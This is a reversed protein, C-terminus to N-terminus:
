FNDVVPKVDVLLHDGKLYLTYYYTESIKEMENKDWREAWWGIIKDTTYHSEFFSYYWVDMSFGHVGRTVVKEAVPYVKVVHHMIPSFGVDGQIQIYPLEEFNPYRNALETMLTQTRYNAFVKQDAMGNGIAITCTFFAYVLVVIPIMLFRLLPRKGIFYATLIAIMAFMVSIGALARSDMPAERLALYTGYSLALMMGAGVYAIVVDIIKWVGKKKSFSFVGIGFVGAMLWYLTKWFGNSNVLLTYLYERFNHWVGRPMETITFMSIDRYEGGTPICRFIIAAVVYFLVSLFVKRFIIKWSKGDLLDKITLGICVVVFIGSSAQYSTWMVLLPLVFIAALKILQWKTNKEGLKHWFLFPLVSAVVSLAMCPADFKYLWRELGFPVLGLMLSAITVLVTPKQIKGDKTTVSIILIVSAVALLVMAVIQTWPSLDVLNTSTNLAYALISSSYRGFDGSWNYGGLARGNDDLHTIDARWIALMALCYVCIIILFVKTYPKIKVLIKKWYEGM